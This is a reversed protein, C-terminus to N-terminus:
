RVRFQRPAYTRIKFPMDAAMFGMPKTLVMLHALKAAKLRDNYAQWEKDSVSLYKQSRDITVSVGGWGFQFEKAVELSARATLAEFKARMLILTTWPVPMTEYTFSTIPPQTNVDGIAVDLCEILIDDHWRTMRPDTPEDMLLKRLKTILVEFATSFNSVAVSIVSELPTPLAVYTTIYYTAYEVTKTLDTDIFSLTTNDVQGIQTDNKYINYGDFADSGTPATWTIKIENLNANTVKNQYSGVLNVPPLLPM